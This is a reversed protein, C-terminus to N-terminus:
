TPEAFFRWKKIKLPSFIIRWKKIVAAYSRLTNDPLAIGGSHTHLCFVDLVLAARSEQKTKRM